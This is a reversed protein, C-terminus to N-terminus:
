KSRELETSHLLDIRWEKKEKKLTVSELWKIIVTKNNATITAENFYSIWAFDGRVKTQLFDIKNVRKFDTLRTKMNNVRLLLSDITWIKGTELLQIDPSCHQKVKEANLEALGDFLGTVVHQVAEEPNSLDKQAKGTLSISLLLTLLLISYKM